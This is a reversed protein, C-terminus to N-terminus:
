TLYVKLNDQGTIRQIMNPVVQLQDVKQLNSLSKDM